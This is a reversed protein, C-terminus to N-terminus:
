LEGGWTLKFQVAEDKYEFTIAACLWFGAIRDNYYKRFVGTEITNLGTFTDHFVVFFADIKGIPIYANFVLESVQEIVVRDARIIQKIHELYDGNIDMM